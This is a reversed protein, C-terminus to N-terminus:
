EEETHDFWEFNIARGTDELIVASHREVNSIAASSLIAHYKSKAQNFDSYAFPINSLVDGNKQMEIVLYM